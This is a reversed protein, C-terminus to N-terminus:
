NARVAHEAPENLRALLARTPEAGLTAWWQEVIWRPMSHRVAAGAPTDDALAGLLAERERALRRLVANVLGRGRGPGALEVADHVVAYPASAAFCLEYAGLRLAALLPAELTELRRDLV